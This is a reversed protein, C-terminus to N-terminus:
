TIVLTPQPPTKRQPSVQLQDERLSRVPEVGRQDKWVVQRWSRRWRLWVQLVCVAMSLSWSERQFYEPHLPRCLFVSLCVHLVFLLVPFLSTSVHSLFVFLKLTKCRLKHKILWLVNGANSHSLFFSLSSSRHTRYTHDTHTVSESLRIHFVKVTATNPTLLYNWQDGASSIVQLLESWMIMYLEGPHKWVQKEFYVSHGEMVIKSLSEDDPVQPRSDWWCDIVWSSYYFGRWLKM